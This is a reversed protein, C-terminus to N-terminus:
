MLESNSRHILGESLDSGFLTNVPIYLIYLIFEHTGKKVTQRIRVCADSVSLTKALVSSL